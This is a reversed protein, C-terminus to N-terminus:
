STWGPGVCFTSEPIRVQLSLLGEAPRRRGRLRYSLVPAVDHNQRLMVTFSGGIMNLGPLLVAFIPVQTEPQRFQAFSSTENKPPSAPLRTVTDAVHPPNSSEVHGVSSKECCPSLSASLRQLSLNSVITRSHLSKGDARLGNLFFALRSGPSSGFSTPVELPPENKLSQM